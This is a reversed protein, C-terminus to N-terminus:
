GLCKSKPEWDDEKIEAGPRSEYYQRCRERFECRSPPTHDVKVDDKLVAYLEEDNEWCMDHGQAEHHKRIATELELIREKAAVLEKVIISL